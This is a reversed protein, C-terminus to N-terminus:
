LEVGVGEEEDGDGSGSGGVEDEDFEGTVRGPGTAVVGADGMVVVGDGDGVVDEAGGEDV